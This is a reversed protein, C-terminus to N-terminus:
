AIQVVNDPQSAPLTRWYQAAAQPTVVERYHEFILRTTSHGLELMLQAANQFHALHYSAFSHRLGNQPWKALGAATKLRETSYFYTRRGLPYVRGEKRHTFPQLWARLAPLITVLRRRATKAKAAAIAVFGRESDIEGWDLQLLESTRLGAFAGLAIVPVLDIDAMELVRRLEEPTFIEPANSPCRLKDIASVPNSQIYGRKVNFSYFGSVIGRYNNLSMPALGLSHLWSEIEGPTIQGLLRHGFAKGFRGLRQEIDALYCASFRANRKGKVYEAITSAVSRDRSVAELHAAFFRAADLINKQYPELLAAAQRALVRFEVSLAAADEGAARIQIELAKLGARAAKEDTFFLRRRKGEVKYGDIYFPYRPNSNNQVIRLM